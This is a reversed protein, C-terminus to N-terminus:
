SIKVTDEAGNVQQSTSKKQEKESIESLLFKLGCSALILYFPLFMFLYKARSEFILVYASVGLIVLKWYLLAKNEEKRNFASVLILCLVLLWIAQEVMAYFRNEDYRKLFLREVLSDGWKEGKISKQVPSFCGDNYNQFNKYTYFFLNGSVGRNKIRKLGKKINAANREKVTSFSCSFSLDKSSVTGLHADNEGMMFYHWVTIQKEPTEKLGNAHFYSQSIGNAALYTGVFVIALVFANKVFKKKDPLHLGVLVIGGAIILIAGTVKIWFGIALSIVGLIKWCWKDKRNVFIFAAFALFFVGYNDTYPVFVRFNFDFLIIGMFFMFLSICKKGTVKYIIQATLLVSLNSFIVGIACVAMWNKFMSLIMAFIFVIPRNIRFLNFYNQHIFKHEFALAMATARVKQFDFDIPKALYKMLFLQVGFVVISIAVLLLYFKQKKMMEIKPIFKRRSLWVTFALTVIVCVMPVLNSYQYTRTKYAVTYELCLVSLLTYGFYVIFIVGIIWNIKKGLKNM